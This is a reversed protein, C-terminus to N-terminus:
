SLVRMKQDMTRSDKADFFIVEPGALVVNADAFMNTGSTKNINDLRLLDFCLQTLTNSGPSTGAPLEMYVSKGKSSSLADDIAGIREQLDIAAKNQDSSKGVLWGLADVVSLLYELSGIAKYYDVCLLKVNPYGALAADVAAYNLMYGWVVLCYTNGDGARSELFSILNVTSLTMEAALTANWAMGNKPYANWTSNGAAAVTDWVGDGLMQVYSDTFGLSYSIIKMNSTMSDTFYLTTDPVGPGTGSSKIWIGDATKGAIPDFPLRAGAKPAPVDAGYAITYMQEITEIIRPNASIKSYDIEGVTPDWAYWGRDESPWLVFAACGAIVLAAVAVSVIKSAKM